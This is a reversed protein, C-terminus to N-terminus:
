TNEYEMIESKAQEYDIGKIEAYLSVADGGRSDHFCYWRNTNPYVAFSDNKEPHLPCKGTLYSGHENLNTFMSAIRIIDVKSQYVPRRDVNPALSEILQRPVRRVEDLYRLQDSLIHGVIELNETLFSYRRGTKLHIGLPGRVLSGMSGRPVFDQKPFIEVERDVVSGLFARLPQAPMPETFVWLHGRGERSAELYSPISMNILKHNVWQLYLLGDTDDSDICAWKVIPGRNCYWGCTYKGKLHNIVVRQSVPRRVAYYGKEYQLAYADMRNIFLDIYTETRMVM